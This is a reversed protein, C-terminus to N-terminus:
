RDLSASTVTWADGQNEVFAHVVALASRNEGELLEVTGLLAPANQFHAVDALFRGVEVEPHIGPTIRRLIKIVYKNDVIVSSNSQEREVAKVTKIEPLPEASLPPRASNSANRRTASRRAPM